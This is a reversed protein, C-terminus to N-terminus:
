EIRMLNSGETQLDLKVTVRRSPKGAYNLTSEVDASGPPAHVLFELTAPAGADGFSMEHRSLAKGDRRVIVDVGSIEKREAGTLELALTLDAPQHSRQWYFTGGIVVVIFAVRILLKKRMM